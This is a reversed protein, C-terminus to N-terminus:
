RLFYIYCLCISANELSAEVKKYYTLVRFSDVSYLVKIHKSERLSIQLVLLRRTTRKLSTILEMVVEMM